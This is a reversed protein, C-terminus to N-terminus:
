VILQLGGDREVTGRGERLTSNQKKKKKSLLHHSSSCILFRLSIWIGYTYIGTNIYNKFYFLKNTKSEIKKM